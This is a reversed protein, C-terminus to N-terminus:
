FIFTITHSSIGRCLINYLYPCSFLMGRHISYHIQISIELNGVTVISSHFTYCSFDKFLLLLLSSSVLSLIVTYLLKLVFIM